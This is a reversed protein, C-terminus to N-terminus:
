IKRSRKSRIKSRSSKSRRSRRKTKHKKINKGKCRTKRKKGGIFLQSGSFLLLLLDTLNKVNDISSNNSNNNNSNTQVQKFRPTKLLINAIISQIEVVLNSQRTIEESNVKNTDSNQLKKLITQYLIIYRTILSINSAVLDTNDTNDSNNLLMIKKVKNIKNFIEEIHSKNCNIRSLLSNFESTVLDEQLMMRSLLCSYFAIQTWIETLIQTFDKNENAQIFPQQNPQQQQRNNEQSFQPPPQNPQQQNLEKNYEEESPGLPPASPQQYDRSFQSQDPIQLPQNYSVPEAVAMPLNNSYVNKENTDLSQQNPLVLSAEPLNNGNNNYNNAM